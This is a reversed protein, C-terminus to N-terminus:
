SKEKNSTKLNCIWNRQIVASNLNDSNGETLKPLEYRKLFEDMEDLNYFKNITVGNHSTDRIIRKINANDITVEERENRINTIPTTKKTM